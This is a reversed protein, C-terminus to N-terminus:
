KVLTMKRTYSGNETELRYFYTGSPLNEADFVVEQNGASQMEASLLTKIKQGLFNYVQLSVSMAEPLEYRIITQPNFPNPYNNNLKVATPTTSAPREASTPIDFTGVAVPGRTAGIDMISEIETGDLNAQSIAGGEGTMFFNSTWYIKDGELDIALGSPDDTETIFREADGTDLEARMIDDNSTDVWYVYGDRSNVAIGKPQVFSTIEVAVEVNSGDFDARMVAGTKVWYMKENEQDLAIDLVGDTDGDEEGAVLSEANSGDLNARLIEGDNALDVWYVKENEPDVAIGKASSSEDNIVEENTGDFQARKVESGFGTQETWYIIGAATDVAIGEVDGEAIFEAESENSPHMWLTDDSAYFLQATAPEAVLFLFILTIIKPSNTDFFIM